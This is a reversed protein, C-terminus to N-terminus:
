VLEHEAGQVNIEGDESDMDNLIGELVGSNFFDYRKELKKFLPYYKKPDSKVVSLLYHGVEQSLFKSRSINGLLENAWPIPDKYSSDVSKTHLLKVLDIQKALYNNCSLAYHFLPASIILAELTHYDYSYSALPEKEVSTLGAINDLAQIVSDTQDVTPHNFPSIERRYTKSLEINGSLGTLTAPHEMQKVVELAQSMWIYEDNPLDRLVSATNHELSHITDIIMALKRIHAITVDNYVNQTIPGVNYLKFTWETITGWVPGGYNPNSWSFNNYYSMVEQSNVNCQEHNCRERLEEGAKKSGDIANVTKFTPAGSYHIFHGLEDGIEKFLFDLYYARINNLAEVLTFLMDPREKLTENPLGQLAYFDYFENKTLAIKYWNMSKTVGLLKEQGHEQGYERNDPMKLIDLARDVMRRGYLTNTPTIIKYIDEKSYGVRLAFEVERLFAEFETENSYYKSKDVLEGKPLGDEEQFFRTKSPSKEIDFLRPLDGDYDETNENYNTAKDLDYDLFDLQLRHILEHLIVSTLRHITIPIVEEMISEITGVFNQNFMLIVSSYDTTLEAGINNNMILNDYRVWLATNMLESTVDQVSYEKQEIATKYQSTNLLYELYEKIPNAFLSINNVFGLPQFEELQNDDAIKYWNM